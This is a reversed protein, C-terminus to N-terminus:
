RRRWKKPRAFAADSGAGPRSQTGGRGHRGAGRNWLVRCVANVTIGIRAVEKALAQTLAVVGAKAAAYNAQGASWMASLLCTVIRGSRQSVMSPLVAQCGYFVGDLNTALVRQWAGAADHWCRMKMGAPMTSSCKWAAMAGLIDAV